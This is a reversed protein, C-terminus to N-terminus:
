YWRRTGRVSSLVLLVVGVILVIVGITVLVALGPVLLGILLLIVGLTIVNAEKRLLGRV